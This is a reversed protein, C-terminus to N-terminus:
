GPHKGSSAMKENILDGSKRLIDSFRYDKLARRYGNLAIERRQDDHELYYRIKEILEDAGRYAVVENGVKFIQELYQQSDCLQMVGNAPLYYLRQNGLGFENWHINFGIKARQNLQM